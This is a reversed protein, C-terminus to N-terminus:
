AFLGSSLWLRDPLSDSDWVQDLLRDFWLPLLALRDARVVIDYCHFSVSFIFFRHFRGNLNAQLLLNTFFTVGLRNTRRFLIVLLLNATFFFWIILQLLVFFIYDRLLLCRLLSIPGNSSVISTDSAIGLSEFLRGDICCFFKDLILAFHSRM